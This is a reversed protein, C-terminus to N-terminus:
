SYMKATISETIATLLFPLLLGIFAKLINIKFILITSLIISIINVYTGYPTPIIFRSLIGLFSVISIYLLKQKKTAQINLVLTIFLMFITTEIIISPIGILNTLTVNPTTLATWITQFIEM